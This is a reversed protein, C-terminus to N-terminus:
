DHRIKILRVRIVYRCAYIITVGLFICSELETVPGAKKYLVKLDDKRAHLLKAAGLLMTTHADHGCAHMKGSEKSKHEWDVLEQWIFRRLSIPLSVTQGCLISPLLWVENMEFLSLFVPWPLPLITLLRALAKKVHITAEHAVLCMLDM